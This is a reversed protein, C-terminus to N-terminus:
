LLTVTSVVKIAPLCVLRQIYGIRSIDTNILPFFLNKKKLFFLNINVLEAPWQQSICGAAGIVLGSVHQLTM